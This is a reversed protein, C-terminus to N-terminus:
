KYNFENISKIAQDILSKTIFLSSKASLVNIPKTATEKNIIKERFCMIM